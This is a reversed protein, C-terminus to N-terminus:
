VEQQIQYELDAKIKADAVLHIGLAREVEWQKLHTLKECNGSIDHVILIAPLHKTDCFLWHDKM